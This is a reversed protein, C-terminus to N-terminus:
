INDFPPSPSVYLHRWWQIRKWIGTTHFVDQRYGAELRSGAQIRFGANILSVAEVRVKVTYLTNLDVLHGLFNVCKKTCRIVEDFISWNEFKKWQWFWSFIELTKFAIVSFLAVETVVCKLRANDLLVPVCQVHPTFVAPYSWIVTIKYLLLALLCM